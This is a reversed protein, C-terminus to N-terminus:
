WMLRTMGFLVHPIQSKESREFHCVPLMPTHHVNYRAGVETRGRTLPLIFSPTKAGAKM